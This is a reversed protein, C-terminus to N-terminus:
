DGNGDTTYTVTYTLTALAQRTEGEGDLGVVTSTLVCNIAKGGLRRSAAIAQEVSECLMDLAADIADAASIRLEVAATLTRVLTGSVSFVDSTESITYVIACPLESVDTPRTRTSAVRGALM